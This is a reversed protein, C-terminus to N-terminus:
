EANSRSNGNPCRKAASSRERTNTSVVAPVQEEESSTMLESAGKMSTTVMPRVVQPLGNPVAGSRSQPRTSFASLM